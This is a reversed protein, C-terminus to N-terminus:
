SFRTIAILITIAVIGAMVIVAAFGKRWRERSALHERVTASIVFREAVNLESFIEANM